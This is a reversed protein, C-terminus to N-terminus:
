CFVIYFGFLFIRRVVKLWVVEKVVRWKVLLGGERFIIGRNDDWKVLVIILYNNIM